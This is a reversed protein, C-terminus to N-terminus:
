QSLKADAVRGGAVHVGGCTEWDWEYWCGWMSLEKESLRAEPHWFLWCARVRNEEIEYFFPHVSSPLHVAFAVLRVKGLEKVRIRM